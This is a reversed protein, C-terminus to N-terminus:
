APIVDTAAPNSVDMPLTGKWNSKQFSVGTPLRTVPISPDTDLHPQLNDPNPFVPGNFNVPAGSM